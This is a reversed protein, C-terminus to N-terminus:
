WTQKQFMKPVADRTNAPVVYMYSPVPKWTNVVRNILYFKCLDYESNHNPTASRGSDNINDYRSSDWCYSLKKNNISM